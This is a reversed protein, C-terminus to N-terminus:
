FEMSTQAEGSPVEAALRSIEPWSVVLGNYALAEEAWKKRECIGYLRYALDRAGEGREGIRALLRAAGTEGETELALILHQVIEWDTLRSDTTPDWDEALKERPLLRVKGARAELIGADVVGRVSVNRATAISEAEGYPGSEMGKYDFWTLAFRTHGDVDGEAEALHEDLSQNIIQLATRVRMPSGDAEVVKAYRSYIAMGPGITAQALDVPAVNEAMMVSLADPLERRLARVFEQRTAPPAEIPRPRCVLVISSALANTGVAVSRGSRETRMPWTGTIQFEAEMLGKLMTEWGTSSISMPGNVNSESESQKFAYYITLPYEPNATAQMRNFAIGLGEEFFKRAKQRSGDFRFPTAILERSKPVLMTSFIDPYLSKLSRRLWVYFFDSLDAYGINDYYPPDTSILPRTGSGVPATVDLQKGSGSPSATPERSGNALREVVKAAWGILIDLSGTSPGFVNAEAYGWTMILAQRAFTGRVIEMQPNSAWTCIKSCYDSTRSVALALYTAVADAYAEAGNGGSNLSMEDDSLGADLADTHVLRRADGVLDSFTNLAVLQRRSFLDRHKNMGYGQVRFGLAQEPLDTEPVWSPEAKEAVAAHENTPKLYARGRDGEAVIAMLQQGMRGAKGEARIHTFPVATGCVVCRAGRRDVTGDQPGGEGTRVEFHVNKSEIVPELWTKRNKKRSLWFSNTLPMAAGCAPNPCMVTYAWLWAIVSEGNPGKPYLHGIRKEAEDRMWKGYYRVDEALGKAGRWGEAHGIGKRAEPNVPPLETFKPPIEILAKTILVAVPNLDSGHAELGLRQAELPISGGGCFPDLVPPPNGGTSRMIEARARGLVKEDNSNEWKVLEELIGFLRDREAKAEEEPLDNSPDDVLSAFLVARCTALPKRSWWLHLTSPHGHRISKERASEKNIADLPLAVEILKKRYTM